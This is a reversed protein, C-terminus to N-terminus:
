ILTCNKRRILILVFTTKYVTLVNRSFSNACVGREKEKERKRERKRKTRRRLQPSTTAVLKCDANDDSNANEDDGDVLSLRETARM